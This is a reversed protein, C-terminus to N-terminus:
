LCFDDYNKVFEIRQNNNKSLRCSVNVKKLKPAQFGRIQLVRVLV